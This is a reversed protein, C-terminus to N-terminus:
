VMLHPVDILSWAISARGILKTQAEMVSMRHNVESLAFILKHEM